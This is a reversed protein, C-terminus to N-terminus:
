PSPLLAYAGCLNSQRRYQTPPFPCHAATLSVTCGVSATRCSWRFPLRFPPWTRIPPHRPLSPGWPACRRMPQGHCKLPMTFFPAKRGWLAIFATHRWSSLLRLCLLPSCAAKKWQASPFRFFFLRISCVYLACPLPPYLHAQMLCASLVSMLDAM